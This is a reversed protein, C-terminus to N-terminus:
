LLRGLLAGLWVASCCVVVTATLNELALLAEGDRLLAITEYSFTSMTTFGGCFGVALFLRMEANILGRELSLIMVLGVMFSGLVNVMLTGAPFAPGSFRQVMGALGYRALSGILGGLGVSVVRLV